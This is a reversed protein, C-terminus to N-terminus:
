RGSPCQFDQGLGNLTGTWEKASAELRPVRSSPPQPSTTLLQLAHSLSQHAQVLSGCVGSSAPPQGGARHFLALARYAHEQARLLHETARYAVAQESDAHRRALEGAMLAAKGINLSAGDADGNAMAEEARAELRELEAQDGVIQAFLPLAYLINTVAFVAWV